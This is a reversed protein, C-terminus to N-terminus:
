LVVMKDGLLTKINQRFVKLFHSRFNVSLDTLFFSTDVVLIYKIVEHVKNNEYNCARLGQDDLIKNMKSLFFVYQSDM